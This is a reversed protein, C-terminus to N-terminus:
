HSKLYCIYHNKLKKNRLEWSAVRICGACIVSFVLCLLTFTIGIFLCTHIFLLHTFDAMVFRVVLDIDYM